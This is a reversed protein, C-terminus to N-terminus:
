GGDDTTWNKLPRTPESIDGVENENLRQNGLVRRLEEAESPQVLAQIDDWLLRRVRFCEPGGDGDRRM